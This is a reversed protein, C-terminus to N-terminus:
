LVFQSLFSVDWQKGVPEFNAMLMDLKYCQVTRMSPLPFKWQSNRCPGTKCLKNEKHLFFVVTRDQPLYRSAWSKLARTINWFADMFYSFSVLFDQPAKQIQFSIAFFFYLHMVQHIFIATIIFIHLKGNPFGEQAAPMTVSSVHEFSDRESSKHHATFRTPKKTSKWVLPFLETEKKKKKQLLLSFYSLFIVTIIKKTMNTM